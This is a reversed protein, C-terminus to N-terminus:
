NEWSLLEEEEGSDEKFIVDAGDRPVMQIKDNKYLGVPDQIIFLKRSYKNIMLRYIFYKDRFGEAVVWENTTLHIRNFHLPKSSITTKVEIYRKKEDLEVSQIDYGAAFQTPIHKILHILDERGGAKIRQCEHSHVLSEGM